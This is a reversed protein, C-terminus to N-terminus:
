LYQRRPRRAYSVGGFSIILPHHKKIEGLTEIGDMGPMRVDLIVVEVLHNKGLVRFASGSFTHKIMLELVHDIM